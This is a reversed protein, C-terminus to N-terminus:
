IRWLLLPTSAPPTFPPTAEYFAFFLSANAPSIPLYGSKTPLAETPFVVAAASLPIAVLLLVLAPLPPAM